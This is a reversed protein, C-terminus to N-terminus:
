RGLCKVRYLDNCQYQVLNVNNFRQVGRYDPECQHLRDAISGVCRYGNSISECIRRHRHLGLYIHERGRQDAFKQAANGVDGINWEVRRVGHLKHCQRKVM